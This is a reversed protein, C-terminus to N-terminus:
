LNLTLTATIKRNNTMLNAANINSFQSYFNYSNNRNSDSYSIDFKTNGFHYGGGFSCGTINELDSANKLPNQEFKYGGRISLRNFRWETGINVNHTNRLDNQFFQNEVAFDEQTLKIKTYNKKIYDISVLGNKGFIFAASTTLKSQTKLRYLLSQEPFYGDATNAYDNELDETVSINVDGLFPLDGLRTGENPLINTEEIIETFWTPTQYSLGFRFSRALKYIVGTNLSFGTGITNNEQYLAAKLNNNDGDTNAETLTTQQTFNLNYTNIGAGVYLRNEYVSSFAINIESLEGNMTNRFRQEESINYELHPTNEDIPFDTFTAIGSNGQALFGNSFDKTIRYNLGIAFKSWRSNYASDFVLVAGAQSANFFQEQTRVANNYYNAIIETNRTNVTGSFTSNKYIAIGAPNVNMASIDGGVAGFAGSMGVFRASGNEDNESFLLALDQYDLSQSYSAIATAIFFVITFLYKM